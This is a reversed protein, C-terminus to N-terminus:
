ITRNADSVDMTTTVYGSRSVRVPVPDNAVELAATGDAATTAQRGADVGGVIDVTADSVPQSETPASETVTVVVQRRAARIELPATGSASQYRATVTVAGESVGTLLGGGSVTARNDDSSSWTATSTVDVRSGDSMAAAASLQATAGPALTAPTGAIAVTIVPPTPTTPKDDCSAAGIALALALMARILRRMSGESRQIAM